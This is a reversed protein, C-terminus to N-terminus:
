LAATTSIQSSIGTLRDGGSEPAINQRILLGGPMFGIAGNPAHALYALRPDAQGRNPEFALPLAAMNAQATASNTKASPQNAQSFATPTGALPGANISLLLLLLSLLQLLRRARGAVFGSGFMASRGRGM